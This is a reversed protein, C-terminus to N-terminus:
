CFFSALLLLLLLALWSGLSEISPMSGPMAAAAACRWTLM